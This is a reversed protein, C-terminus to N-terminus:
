PKKKKQNNICDNWGKRYSDRILSEEKQESEKVIDDSLSQYAEKYYLGEEASMTPEQKQECAPCIDELSMGFGKAGCIHKIEKQEQKNFLADLQAFCKTTPYIGCEDPNDLMESIIRTRETIFEEKNM